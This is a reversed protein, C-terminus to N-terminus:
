RQQIEVLFDQSAGLTVRSFIATSQDKKPILRFNRNTLTLTQTIINRALGMGLCKRSGVGFPLFAHAASLPTEFRYPNFIEANQWYDSHRHLNFINILVTKNEPITYSGAAVEQTTRHWSSWVPPYLRLVEHIFMQLCQTQEQPQLDPKEAHVAPLLESDIKDKWAPHIALTYLMWSLVDTTSFQGAALINKVEVVVEEETLPEEDETRSDMLHALLTGAFSGNQRHEQMMQRVARDIGEVAKKGALNSATPIWFPLKLLSPDSVYRNGLWFSQYLEEQRGFQTDNFLCRSLIRLVMEAMAPQLALTSGKAALLHWHSITKEIEQLVIPEYASLKERNFIPQARQRQQKWLHGSSVVVGNGLVTRLRDNILNNKDFHRHSGQLLQRAYDPHSILYIDEISRCRVVDGYEQMLKHFYLVPNNTVQRHFSWVSPGPISTHNRKPVVSSMSHCSKTM